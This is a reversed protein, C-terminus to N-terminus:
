GSTHPRLPDGLSSVIAPAHLQMAEVYVAKAVRDGSADLQEVATDYRLGDVRRNKGFLAQVASSASKYAAEGIASQSGNCRQQEAESRHIARGTSCRIKAGKMGLRTHSLPGLDLGIALGLEDVDVGKEDLFGLAREFGSRMAGACLAATSITDEVDTTKATGELLVGHLCDGIFRIRRGGFDSEMVADLESRLVHLTRVLDETNDTLHKDVYATFGDIDAYVSVGEFRKTNSANLLEFDLGSLPPTPRTFEFSGIPHEAQEDRWEQVITDKSIGLDAKEICATIQERTLATWKDRGEAVRPFGMADRAANTLFIGESAGGGACHAARNAPSGLFLPERSSRRGNNVALALGTDIGVRVKANPIQEDDDGTEALVDIALQAIAVASAVREAESGVGYPKPVVAHLRQNHFDVRIAHTEALIRHVARYHQNLFRLTRKHSTEGESETCSLLEHVNLIDMYLHVADMRYARGVPINDLSMERTYDCIDVKEVEKYRTDLRKDTRDQKWSHGM